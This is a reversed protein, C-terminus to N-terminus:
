AVVLGFFALGIELLGGVTGANTHLRWGAAARATEGAAKGVPDEGVVFRVGCRGFPCGLLVGFRSFVSRGCGLFHVFFNM